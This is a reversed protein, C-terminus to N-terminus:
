RRAWRPDSASAMGVDMKTLVLSLLSINCVSAIRALLTLLLQSFGYSCKLLTTGLMECFISLVLSIHTM